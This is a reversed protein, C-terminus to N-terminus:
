RIDAQDRSLSRQRVWSGEHARQVAPCGPNKTKIWNRSRGSRYPADIRKSVIGELGMRCAAAFVATGDAEVHENIVIGGRNSALLRALKAKRKGYPWPRLDTGNLEMLDFGYLFAESLRRESHLADFIAIGDAGCVVAEGDITFSRARLRGAAAAIVPYRATWDYGRRTFLRAKAGDHRVILRYGDHKIEHAWGPGSPPASAQSPICPEIFGSPSLSRLVMAGDHYPARRDLRLVAMRGCHRLFEM